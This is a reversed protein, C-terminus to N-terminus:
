TMQPSFIFLPLSFPPFRLLFLFFPSLFLFFPFSFPLLPLLLTFYICFLSSNLTFPWLLLRFHCTTLPPFIDKESPSPPIFISGLGQTTLHIRGKTALADKEASSCHYMLDSFYRYEGREGEGSLSHYKEGEQIISINVRWADNKGKNKQEKQMWKGKLSKGEDTRKRRKVSFNWRKRM